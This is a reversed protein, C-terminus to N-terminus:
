LNNNFKLCIRQIAATQYRVVEGCKISAYWVEEEEEEEEEM